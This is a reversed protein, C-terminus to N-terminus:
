LDFYRTPLVYGVAIAIGGLGCSIVCVIEVSSLERLRYWADLRPKPMHLISSGVVTDVLAAILPSGVEM